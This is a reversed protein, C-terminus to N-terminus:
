GATGSPAIRGETPSVKAGPRALMVGEVIIRDKPDLGRRVIRLGLERPGPRVEKPVVTGDAAVTLVLKRAQDSVIAADPVLLADYPNSGPLRLTGFQGPTIFGEPNAVVARARVTGTGRDVVNDVFNMQGQYTWGQEDMLRLGVPTNRDRTSPLRGELVARQYALFDAESLDFVFHIPDLAVITTLLTAADVLNGVDVRRDSIRGRFPATIRTFGLDLEAERLAAEAAQVAAGEAEAEAQRQDLTARAAASTEVLRQTRGLDLRALTLQSQARAVDARAREVAAEFPRPDIVFLLQGAEVMQGDAFHISALYGPVRARVEVSEVAEFRGTFEDWEVLQQVLPAAVTVAPPPPSSKAAQAAGGQDAEGCAALFPAALLFVALVATAGRPRGRNSSAAM